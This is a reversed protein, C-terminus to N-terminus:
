GHIKRGNRIKMLDLINQDPEFTIVEIGRSGKYVIKWKKVGPIRSSCNPRRSAEQEYHRLEPDGEPAILMIEEADIRAVTKRRAKGYIRDVDLQGEIWIYEYELDGYKLMAYFGAASGFVGFIFFPHFLLTCILFAGTLCGLLATCFINMPSRRAKIMVSNEFISM